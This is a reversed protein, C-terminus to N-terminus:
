IEVFPFGWIQITFRILARLLWNSISPNWSNYLDYVFLLSYLLPKSMIVDGGPPIVSVCVVHPVVDPLYRLRSSRISWVQAYSSVAVGGLRRGRLRVWAWFRSGFYWYSKYQGSAGVRHKKAFSQPLHFALPQILLGLKHSYSGILILGFKIMILWSKIWNRECMRGDWCVCRAGNESELRCPRSESTGQRLPWRRIWCLGLPLYFPSRERTLHLPFM